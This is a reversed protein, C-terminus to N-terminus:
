RAVRVTKSLVLSVGMVAVTWLPFWATADNKAMLVLGAVYVAILVAHKIVQKM